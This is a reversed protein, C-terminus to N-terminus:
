TASGHCDAKVLCATAMGAGDVPGSLWLQLSQFFAQLLGDQVLQRAHQRCLVHFNIVLRIANRFQLLLDRGNCSALLRQFLNDLFVVGLGRALHLAKLSLHHVLKVMLTALHLPHEILLQLAHLVQEVLTLRRLSFKAASATHVLCRHAVWLGTHGELTKNMKDHSQQQKGTSKANPFGTCRSGMFTSRVPSQTTAIRTSQHPFLTQDTIQVSVNQSNTLCM